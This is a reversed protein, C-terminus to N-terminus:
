IWRCVTQIREYRGAIGNVLVVLHDPGSVPVHSQDPNSHLGEASAVFRGSFAVNERNEKDRITPKEVRDRGTCLYATASSAALIGACISLCRSSINGHALQREHLAGQVCPWLKTWSSSNYGGESHLAQMGGRAPFTTTTIPSQVSSVSVTRFMMTMMIMMMTMVDGHVRGSAHQHDLSSTKREVSGFHM